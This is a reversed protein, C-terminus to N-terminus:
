SAWMGNIRRPPRTLGPSYEPWTASFSRAGVSAVSAPTSMGAPDTPRTSVSASRGDDAPVRRQHFPLADFPDGDYSVTQPVFGYNVPDGGIQDPMIRDIARANADMDVEWKRRDGRSIEIYANVTGDANLPPTDRWVHTAHPKSAALNRALQSVAAAPLENSIGISEQGLLMVPLLALWVLAQV